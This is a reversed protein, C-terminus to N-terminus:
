RGGGWSFNEFHLDLDTQTGLGLGKDHSRNDWRWVLKCGQHIGKAFAHDSDVHQHANPTKFTDCHIPLKNSLCDPWHVTRRKANSADSNPATDPVLAPTGRATRRPLPKRNWSHLRARLQLVLGATKVANEM